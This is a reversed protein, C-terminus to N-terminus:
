PADELAITRPHIGGHANHVAPMIGVVCDLVIQEDPYGGLERRCHESWRRWKVHREGPVSEIRIYAAALRFRQRVIV